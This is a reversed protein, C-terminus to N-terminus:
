TFKSLDLLSCEANVNINLNQKKNGYQQVNYCRALDLRIKAQMEARRCEVSSKKPNDPDIEVADVIAVANEALGHGQYERAAAIMGSFPPSLQMWTTITNRNVGIEKAAEQITCGDEILEIVRAANEPTFQSARGTRRRALEKHLDEVLNPSINNGNTGTSATSPSLKFPTVVTPPFTKKEAVPIPSFDLDDM